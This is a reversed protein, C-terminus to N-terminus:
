QITILPNRWAYVTREVYFLCSRVPLEKILVESILMHRHIRLDGISDVPPPRPAPLLPFKSLAAYRPARGSARTLWGRPSRMIVPLSSPDAAPHSPCHLGFQFEAKAPYCEHLHPNRYRYSEFTYHIESISLFIVPPLIGSTPHLNRYRYFEFTYHIEFVPLLIVWLTASINLM